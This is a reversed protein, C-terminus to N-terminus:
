VAQQFVTTSDFLGSNSEVLPWWVLLSHLYHLIFKPLRPNLYQISITLIHLSTWQIEDQLSQRKFAPIYICMCVVHKFNM